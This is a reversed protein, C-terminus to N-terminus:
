KDLLLLGILSDYENILSKETEKQLGALMLDVNNLFFIKLNVSEKDVVYQLMLGDVLALLGSAISAEHINDKIENKEKGAKILSSIVSRFNQYMRKFTSNNEEMNTRISSGWFEFMIDIMHEDALLFDVIGECLIEIRKIEGVNMILVQSLLSEFEEEWFTFSYQLIDDKNKFYEYITGKGIGAAIAIESITTKKVGKKTFVSLAAMVIEKKKKIKDVIIPM